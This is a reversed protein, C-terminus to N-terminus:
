ENVVLNGSIFRVCCQNHENTFPCTSCLINEKCIELIEVTNIDKYQELHLKNEKKILIYSIDEYDRLNIKLSIKNEYISPFMIVKLNEIFEYIELKNIYTLDNFDGDYKKILTSIKNFDM